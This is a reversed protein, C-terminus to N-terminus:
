ASLVSIHEPFDLEESGANVIRLYRPNEKEGVVIGGRERM